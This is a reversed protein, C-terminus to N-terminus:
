GIAKWLPSINPPLFTITSLPGAGSLSSKSPTLASVHWQCSTLSINESEACRLLFLFSGLLNGVVVVGSALLIVGLHEFPVLEDLHRARFLAFRHRRRVGLRFGLRRGLLLSPSSPKM